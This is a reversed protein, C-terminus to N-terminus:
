PKFSRICPHSALEQGQVSVPDLMAAYSFANHNCSPKNTINAKATAPTIWVTSPLSQFGLGFPLAPPVHPVVDRIYNYVTYNLGGVISHVDRSYHEDGCRPSAFLEGGVSFQRCHPSAGFPIRAIDTMLYTALAAGLSHGIVTMTAGEPMAQTCGQAALIGDGLEGPAHYRMSQYISYFGHEVQGIPPGPVLFGEINEFWEIAQETGRVVAVHTAPDAKNFAVFGYYVRDGIGVAQAGFLANMATLHAILTWDAAARPDLPPTLNHPNAEDFMAEAYAALLACKAANIM